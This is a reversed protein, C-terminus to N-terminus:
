CREFSKYLEEQSIVLKLSSQLLNSPPFCWKRMAPIIVNKLLDKILNGDEPPTFKITKSSKLHPNFPSSYLFGLEIGIREFCKFEDEYDVEFILHVLFQPLHHSTLFSSSSSTYPPLLNPLSILVLDGCGIDGNEISLNNNSLHSKTSFSIGFYSSLMPIMEM